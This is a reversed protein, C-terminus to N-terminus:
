WRAGLGATATARLGALAFLRQGDADRGVVAKVTWGAELSVRLVFRLVLPVHLAGHIIPALWLGGLRQGALRDSAMTPRGRLSTWGARMGPGASLELAALSTVAVASVSLGLSHLSVDAVALTRQGLQGELVAVLGYHGPVWRVGAQATPAVLRPQGALGLGGAVWAVFAGRPETGPEDPEPQASPVPRKSVGAPTHPTARELRATAILESLALATLRARASAPTDALDLSLELPQRRTPDEVRLRVREHHCDVVARTANTKPADPVSDDPAVVPRGLLEISVLERIRQPMPPACDTSTLTIPVATNAPAPTQALADASLPLLTTPLAALRWMLRAAMRLATGAGMRASHADGTATRM